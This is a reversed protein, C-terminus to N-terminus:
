ITRAKLFSKSFYSLDRPRSKMLVSRTTISSRINICVTEIKKQVNVLVNLTTLEEFLLKKRVVFSKLVGRVFM